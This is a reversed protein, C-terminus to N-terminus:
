APSPASPQSERPLAVVAEFLASLESAVRAAVDAVLADKELPVGLGRIVYGGAVHGLKSAEARRELADRHEQKVILQGYLRVERTGGPARLVLELRYLEKAYKSPARVALRRKAITSPRKVKGGTFGRSAQQEVFKDRCAILLRLISEHVHARAALLAEIDEPALVDDDYGSETGVLESWYDDHTAAFAMVDSIREM